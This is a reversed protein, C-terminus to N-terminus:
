FKTLTPLPVYFEVKDSALHELAVKKLEEKINWPFIIIVDVNEISLNEFAKIPIHSGPMYKGQKSIASDTIFKIENKTVGASNILTNAKAAAGIGVVAKGQAQWSSISAKFETLVQDVIFQFSLYKDLSSLGFRYEEKFLQSVAKSIHQVGNAHKIFLRLSGGHTSLTEVDVVDLGFLNCIHGVSTLSLYSFHEHYITDFQNFKILNLLHPFEITITGNDSLLTALGKVFDNIDPVHALVNNCIILDSKTYKEVLKNALTSNFFESLVPIGIERAAMATSLTPEIGLCPIGQQVFNRLLYGDNSAVEVVFSESNLALQKIVDASYEKAHNFWVKSTSSFYAYDNAFFTDASAFDKTQVLWCNHCVYTVLPYKPAEFDSKIEEESLYHNSAPQIGLDVFKHTLEKHCHRCIM